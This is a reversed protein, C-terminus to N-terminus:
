IGVELHTSYVLCLPLSCLSREVLWPKLVLCAQMCCMWAAALLLQRRVNTTKECWYENLINMTKHTTIFSTIGTIHMNGMAARTYWALM